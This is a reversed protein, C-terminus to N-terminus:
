IEQVQQLEAEKVRRFFQKSGILMLGLMGGLLTSIAFIILTKKNEASRPKLAKQDVLLMRTKAKEPRRLELQALREELSRLESIFPDNNKRAKLVELEASLAEIGRSYLPQSQTNVEVTSERGVAFGAESSIGLRKAVILAEELRAMQDQRLQKAAERKIRMQGELYKGDVTLQEEIDTFIEDKTVQEIFLVYENLWSAAREADHLKFTVTASAPPEQKKDYSLSLQDMFRKKFIRDQEDVSAQEQVFFGLLERENFFRRMNSVSQFNQLYQRFVKGPQYRQASDVVTLEALMHPPAPLLRSEAKYVPSIFLLWAGALLWALVIGLFLLKKNSKILCWLDILNLEDEPHAMQVM